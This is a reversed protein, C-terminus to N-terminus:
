TGKTTPSTTTSTVGRLFKSIGAATCDRNADDHARRIKTDHARNYDAVFRNAVTPDYDPRGKLAQVFLDIQDHSEDVEIQAQETEHLNYQECSGVRAALTAKKYASLAAEARAARADARDASRSSSVAIGLSILVALALALMINRNRTWTDDMRKLIANLVGTLRRLAGAINGEDILKTTAAVEDPPDTETEGNM